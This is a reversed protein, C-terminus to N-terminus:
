DFVLVVDLIEQDGPRVAVGAEVGTMRQEYAQRLLQFLAVFRPHDKRLYLLTPRKMTQVMVTDAESGPDSIAIITDFVPYYTRQLSQSDRDSEIVVPEGDAFASRLIDISEGAGAVQPDM